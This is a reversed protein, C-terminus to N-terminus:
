KAKVCEKVLGRVTKKDANSNAARVEALCDQAGEVKARLRGPAVGADELCKSAAARLVAKDGGPNGAKAAGLCNRVGERKAQQEPTPTKVEIGAEDLCSKVAARLAAKDAAPAEQRAQALCAKAAPRNPGGAGTTGAWAAAGGGMAIGAGALLALVRKM